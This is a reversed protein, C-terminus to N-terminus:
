ELSVRPAVHSFHALSKAYRLPVDSELGAPTKLKRVAMWQGVIYSRRANRKKVAELEEEQRVSGTLAERANEFDEEMNGGDARPTADLGNDPTPNDNFFAAIPNPQTLTKFGIIRPNKSSWKAVPAEIRLGVVHSVTSERSTGGLMGNANGDFPGWLSAALQESIPEFTFDQVEQNGLESIKLISVEMNATLGLSGAPLQMPRALISGNFRREPDLARLFNIQKTPVRSTVSFSFSGGRVVWASNPTQPANPAKSPAIAGSELSLVHHKESKRLVVGLFESFELKRLGENNSEGFEVRFSFVTWNFYVEGRFPPGSIHLEASLTIKLPLTIIWAKAEYSLGASIFFRADYYIPHMWLILDARFDFHAGCRGSKYSASVALGAMLADPTVAAYAQGDLLLEKNDGYSWQLRMRPPASPYHSPPQYAPHWGGISICWDGAQPSTGFWAGVAFGGSLVSDEFLIFSGDAIRGEFLMSGRSMDISGQFNIKVAALIQGPKADRPFKASATGVIALEGTVPDLPTTVIAQVDILECATGTVGAAVWNAGNTETMYKAGDRGRLREFMIIPDTDPSLLLPFKHIETISPMELKSGLGFGGSISTLEVLGTKLMPGKLMAYGMLSVFEEQQIKVSKYSGFGVFQYKKLKVSVGGEFGTISVDDGETKICNLTGAVNLSSGTMALSLGELGMEIDLNKWDSLDIREGRPLKVSMSFNILEGDLPGVTMHATFKVKIKQGKADYEFGISTINVGNVRRNVKKMEQAEPKEEEKSSATMKSQAPKSALVIDGNELLMFSLGQGFVSAETAHNSRLLQQNKFIALSNLRDVEELSIDSNTWYIQTSFPQEMQGVLPLPPPRPLANVALKLMTKWPLKDEKKSGNPQVKTRALQVIVSGLAFSLSIAIVSSGEGKYRSLSMGFRSKKLDIMAETIFTPLSDEISQGALWELISKVKVEEARILHLEADMELADKKGVYNITMELLGAVSLVGSVLVSFPKDTRAKNYDVDVYIYDMSMDWDSMVVRAMEIHVGLQVFKLGSKDKDIFKGKINAMGIGFEPCGEPRPIDVNSIGVAALLAILELEKQGKQLVISFEVSREETTSNTFTALSINTRIGEIVLAAFVDLNGVVKSYEISISGVTFHEKDTASPLQLTADDRMELKFSSPSGTSLDLSMEVVKVELSGLASHLPSDVGRILFHLVDVGKLSSGTFPIISAILEKKEGTYKVTIMSKISKLQLSASIVFSVTSKAKHEGGTQEGRQWSLSFEVDRLKFDQVELVERQFKITSSCISINGKESRDLKADCHTLEVASNGSLFPIDPMPGLGLITFIDALTISDPSDFIIYGLENKAPLGLTLGAEKQLTESRFTAEGKAQIDGDGHWEVKIVTDVLSLSGVILDFYPICLEFDWEQYNWKKNVNAVSIGAQQVQVAGFARDLAPIARIKESVDTFGIAGVIDPVTVGYDASIIQLRYDYDGERALPIADFRVTISRETNSPLPMTFQVSTALRLTELYLPDMVRILVEAKVNRFNDPVPLFNQWESSATRVWIDALDYMDIMGIPQRLSFGVESMSGAPMSKISTPAEGEPSKGMLPINGKLITEINTTTDVLATLLDTIAIVTSSFSIITEEESAKWTMEFKIDNQKKSDKAKLTAETEVTLHVQPSCCKEVRVVVDQLQFKFGAMETDIVNSAETKVSARQLIASGIVQGELPYSHLIATSADLDIEFTALGIKLLSEPLRGIVETLASQNRYLHSLTEIMNPNLKEKIPDNLIEFAQRLPVHSGFSTAETSSKLDSSLYPEVYSNTHIVGSSDAETLFQAPAVRLHVSALPANDPKPGFDVDGSPVYYLMEKSVTDEISYLPSGYNPGQLTYRFRRSLSTYKAIRCTLDYAGTTVINLDKKDIWVTQPNNDDAIYWRIGNQDAKLYLYCWAGNVFTRIQYEETMALIDHNSHELWFHIERRLTLQADDMPFRIEQTVKKMDREINPPMEMGQSEGSLSMYTGRSLYSIRLNEGFFLSEVSGHGMVKAVRDLSEMDISRGSTVYLRASRNQDKVAIALGVLVEPRPHNYEGNASVVYVDAGFTIYFKRVCCVHMYTGFEPTDNNKRFKKWRERHLSKTDSIVEDLKKLLGEAEHLYSPAGLPFEIAIEDAKEAPPNVNALHTQMLGEMAYQLNNFYNILDQFRLIDRDLVGAAYKVTDIVSRKFPLYATGLRVKLLFYIFGAAEVKKTFTPLSFQKMNDDLAGHHQIKYISFRRTELPIAKNIAESIIDAHNDGTFFIGMEGDSGPTATYMLISRKNKTKGPNLPIKAVDRGTGGYYWVIGSPYIAKIPPILYEYFEEGPRPAATRMGANTCIDEIPKNSDDDESSANPFFVNSTPFGPGQLSHLYGGYHDEDPHSFVIAAFDNRNGMIQQCASSLYRHYPAEWGSYANYCKPGGDVLIFNRGGPQKYDDCELIMADGRGAYIVHLVPFSM